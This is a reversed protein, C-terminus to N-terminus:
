TKGVFFDNVITVNFQGTGARLTKLTQYAPSHWFALAAERSPWKSIVVSRRAGFEGELLEADRGICVYEGGFEKVLSPTQQTYQQFRQLDTIEAQVIMFCSM